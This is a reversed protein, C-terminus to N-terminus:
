IWQTNKEKLESSYQVNSIEEIRRGEEENMMEENCM